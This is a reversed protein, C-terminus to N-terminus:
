SSSNGYGDEHNDQTSPILVEQCHFDDPQGVFYSCEVNDDSGKEDESGRPKRSQLFDLIEGYFTADSCEQYPFAHTKPSQSDDPQEEYHPCKENDDSTDKISKSNEQSDDDSSQACAKSFLEALFTSVEVERSAQEANHNHEPEEKQIDPKMQKETSQGDSM